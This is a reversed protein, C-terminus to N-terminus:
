SDPESLSFSGIHLSGQQQQSSSRRRILSATSMFQLMHQRAATLKLQLTPHIKCSIDVAVNQLVKCDSDVAAGSTQQLKCSSSISFSTTM